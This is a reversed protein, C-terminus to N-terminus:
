RYVALGRSVIHAPMLLFHAQIVSANRIVPTHSVKGAALPGSSM